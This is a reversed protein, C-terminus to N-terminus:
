RGQAHEVTRLYSVVRRTLANYVSHARDGERESLLAYLRREADPLPNGNVEIGAERLRTAFRSVLLSPVTVRGAALDALGPEVLEAGPLVSSTPLQNVPALIPGSDTRAYAHTM